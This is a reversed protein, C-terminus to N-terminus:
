RKTRAAQSGPPMARTAGSFVTAIVLDIFSRDVPRRSFLLRNVIPGAILDALAEPDFGRPLEGREIGRWAVEVLPAWRAVLYRSVAEDLEPDSGREAVLHPLVRGLPSSRLITVLDGLIQRLDGRLTGTAPVRLEPLTTIADVVLPLRSAWRRYITAKGVGARAAVGEVTFGSMGAEAVLALAADLIAKEAEESRPRGRGGPTNTAVTRAIGARRARTPLLRPTKSRSAM